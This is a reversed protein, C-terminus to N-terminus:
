RDGDDEDDIEDLDELEEFDEDDSDDSDKGRDLDDDLLDDADDLSAFRSRPAGCLPCKSPPEDEEHVYGCVECVWNSM